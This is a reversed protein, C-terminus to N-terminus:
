KIRKDSLYIKILNFFFFISQIFLFPKNSGPACEYINM